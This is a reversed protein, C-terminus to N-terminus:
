SHNPCHGRHDDGPVYTCASTASPAVPTKTPLLKTVKGNVQDLKQDETLPRFASVSKATILILFLCFIM